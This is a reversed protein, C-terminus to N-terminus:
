QASEHHKRALERILQSNAKGSAEVMETFISHPNSLLNHPSDFEALEGADLVLVRDFEAITNIRHAISIVTTNEFNDFIAKQILTNSEEDVSSTAEDMVMLRPEKLIARSLCVLQRQGVSLNQGNSTVPAELKEPLEVVYNKLGSHELAKWLQDDTYVNEYDLNSRITGAFLVPDQPIMQLRSRLTTLGVRSIDLILNSIGQGDILVKGKTPEMMRFFATVLTSKGSGTRGVVGIKEGAKFSVTLDKIVPYDMRSSYCLELHEIKVDGKSPWVQEKPDSPLTYAAEKPLNHGYHNLREISNMEAEGSGIMELFRGILEAMSPVFTLAIGVSAALDHSWNKSAVSLVGLALAIFSSLVGIRMSLWIKASAFTYDVSQFEDILQKQVTLFEDECGYARITSSGTLSETVHSDLPSKQTSRIRKLEINAPQYTKYLISYLAGLIAFAINMLVMHLSLDTASVDSSLRNIIRGIPNREFFYMPARFLADIANDHLNRSARVTMVFSVLFSGISLIAVILAAIGYVTMYYSYKSTDRDSTWASIWLPLFTEVASNSISWLITVIPLFWGGCARVYALFVSSKVSGVEKEEEEIFESANKNDEKELDESKEVSETEVEDEFKYSAVMKKLLGDKNQLLETFTGYEGIKGEDLAIVKDVQQLFHLQHTALIVTKNKLYGQIANQFVERGVQADLSAIPDDLLYIDADYYLARALALRSKQGGSLNVGNEGIVTKIGDSLDRLDKSLGSAAVCQNLKEQDLPQHFLINKELSGSLIWPLQQCYAVKGNLLVTGSIKAAEGILGSFFTSKGSGIPGVIGVLSGKAIKLNAIEMTFQPKSEKPEVEKSKNEAKKDVKSDKAAPASAEWKWSVSDLQIAYKSDIKQTHHRKHKMEQALLFESVREFSIKARYYSDFFFQVDWMVSAIINIYAIAAFVIDPTMSHGTAAYTLFLAICVGTPALGSIGQVFAIYLVFRTIMKLQYERLAMYKEKFYKEMAHFKVVKIGYLMERLVQIRADGAKMVAGINKGMYPGGIIAITLFVALAGIGAFTSIGCLTFLCYFSVVLQLPVLVCSNFNNVGRAIQNIDNNIMNMIKGEPYESRAKTTLQLSKELLIAQLISSLKQTVKRQVILSYSAFISKFLQIGFLIFALAIGNDIWYTGTYLPTIYLIMQQLAQPFLLTLIVSCLSFMTNTLFESLIIKCVHFFLSPKKHTEPDQLFLALESRYSDMKKGLYECQDKDGLTYLDKAQLPEKKGHVLLPTLWSVTFYSWANPAIKKRLTDTCSSNLKDVAM